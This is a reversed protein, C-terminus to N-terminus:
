SVYRYGLRRAVRSVTAGSVGYTEALALILAGAARAQRLNRVDEPSLKACPGAEGRPERLKKSRCIKCYRKRAKEDRSVVELGCTICIVWKIM